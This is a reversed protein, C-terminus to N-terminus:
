VFARSKLFLLLKRLTVSSPYSHHFLALNARANCSWTLKLRKMHESIAIVRHKDITFTDDDFMYERVTDGFIAKAEEM